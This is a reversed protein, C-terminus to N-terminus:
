SKTLLTGGGQRAVRPEAVPANLQWFSTKGKAVGWFVIQLVAAFTVNYGCGTSQMLRIIQVQSSAITSVQVGRPSSALQCAHLLLM